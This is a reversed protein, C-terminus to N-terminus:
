VRRHLCSQGFSRGPRSSGASQRCQFLCGACWLGDEAVAMGFGELLSPFVFVDALNYYDVKDAESIYGTFIVAQQLGKRQAYAKLESEQPGTGGIVLVLNPEQELALALVDVLFRLNKRPTL